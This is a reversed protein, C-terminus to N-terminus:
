RVPIKKEAWVTLASTVELMEMGEETLLFFTYLM